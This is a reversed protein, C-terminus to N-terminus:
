GSNAHLEREKKNNIKLVARLKASRARPNFVIEQQDGSIPKRTLLRLDSDYRDGAAEKFADKVIRDELSHFTIVALRGGPTLLKFWLPLSQRLLELEDNVALRLAQFTRTAPHHRHYGPYAKSVVAALETTTSLPRHAVILEAIHRARPEEGYRKLVDAVAAQEYDNVITAASFDRSQDMRMDLPGEQMFAFGRSAIDLHPSSVGLDALILDFRKGERLLQQSAQYFDEHLMRVPTDAFVGALADIAMQDRDVLVAQDYNQTLALVNSSHGGYGATLDLYSNGKEPALYTLVPELLVPTHM